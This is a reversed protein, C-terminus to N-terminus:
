PKALWTELPNGAQKDRSPVPATQLQIDVSRRYESPSMGAVQRFSRSFFALSQFGSRTAVVTLTLAPDMLLTKAHNIRMERVHEFVSHGTERRFVRALHEEGKGAHWAVQALRLEPDTFHKQLYEMAVGVIPNSKTHSPWTPPAALQRATFVLLDSCLAHVRHRFGLARTESEHRLAFLAARIEPTIGGVLHAPVRFRSCVFAALSTRDEAGSDESAAGVVAQDLFLRFAHIRAARRPNPNRYRHFRVPPTALVDGERLRGTGDIGEIEHAIEGDLIFLFKFHHRLLEVVGGAPIVFVLEDVLLFPAGFKEVSHSSLGMRDM